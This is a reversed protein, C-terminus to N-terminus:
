PPPALSATVDAASRALIYRGARNEFATKWRQQDDSLIGTSTKVEVAVLEMMTKGVMEPTIVVPFAAYIDPSGTVGISVIRGDFTRFKGVQNRWVMAGHISLEMMVTNMINTEANRM